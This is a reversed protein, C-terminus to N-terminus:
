IREVVIYWLLITQILIGLGRSTSGVHVIKAYVRGGTEVVSVNVLLCMLGVLASHRPSDCTFQFFPERLVVIVRIWSRCLLSHEHILCVKVDALNISSGGSRGRHVWASSPLLNVFPEYVNPTSTPIVLSALSACAFSSSGGTGL